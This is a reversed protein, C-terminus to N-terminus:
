GATVGGSQKTYSADFFLFREFISSRHMLDPVNQRFNAEITAFFTWLAFTRLDECELQASCKLDSNIFSNKLFRVKALARCM